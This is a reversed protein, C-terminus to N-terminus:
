EEPTLGRILDKHEPYKELMDKRKALTFDEFDFGPSLTCGVLSFSAPDNVRAGFWSFAPVVIQFHEGEVYNTGVKKQTLLGNSDIIYLTLSSGQYFHWIEDTKLRHFFSVENGKLLFYISTSVSRFENNNFGALGETRIVGKQRYVERFWGGEPHKQLNLADIWFGANKM